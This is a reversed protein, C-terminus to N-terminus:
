GFFNQQCPQAEAICTPAAGTPQFPPVRKFWVGVATDIGVTQQKKCENGTRTETVSARRAPPQPPERPPQATWEQPHPPPPPSPLHEPPDRECHSREGVCDAPACWGLALLVSPLCVVVAWTHVIGIAHAPLTLHTSPEPYVTTQTLKAQSTSKVILSM